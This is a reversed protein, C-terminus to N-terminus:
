SFYIDIEEKRRRVLGPLIVGGGKVYKVWETRIAPNNPNAKVLNLIFSAGGPGLNMTISVLADFQNQTLSVGLRNVTQESSSLNWGGQGEWKNIRSIMAQTIRM